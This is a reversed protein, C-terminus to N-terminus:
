LTMAKTYKTLTRSRYLKIVKDKCSIFNLYNTKVKNRFNLIYIKNTKNVIFVTKKFNKHVVKIYSIFKKCYISIFLNVQASINLLGTSIAETIPYTIEAALEYGVPLFGIM